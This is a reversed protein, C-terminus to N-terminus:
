SQFSTPLPVHPFFTSRTHHVPEEEADDPDASDQVKDIESADHDDLEDTNVQASVLDEETEDADVQLPGGQNADQPINGALMADEVKPTLTNSRPIPSSPPSVDMAQEEDDDDVANPPANM